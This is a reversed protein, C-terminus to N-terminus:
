FFLSILMAWVAWKGAIYTYMYMHRYSDRLPMYAIISRLSGIIGRCMYPPMIGECTTPIQYSMERQLSLMNRATFTSHLDALWLVVPSDTACCEHHTLSTGTEEQGCAICSIQLAGAPARCIDKLMPISAGYVETPNPTHIRKYHIYIRKYNQVHVCETNQSIEHLFSELIHVTKKYQIQAFM